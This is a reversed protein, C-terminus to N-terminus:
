PEYVLREMFYCLCDQRIVRADKTLMAPTVARKLALLDDRVDLFSASVDRGDHNWVQLKLGPGRVRALPRGAELDRFNLTELDDGFCLECEGDGFCFEISDPVKVTAVTHYLDLDHKPVPHLPFHSLRLCAEVFRAAHDANERVGPKGCEVTV